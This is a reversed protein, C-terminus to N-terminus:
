LIKLSIMFEKAPRRDKEVAAAAGLSFTSALRTFLVLEFDIQAGFNALERRLPTKDFNTVIASTFLALRSWTTYFSMWGARRFRIPPLAWEMMLRGYNKGSIENLEAGPFSYHERYRKEDQYDVWNNGFGGFYFNAFPENRDGYAYGASGRWWISSHNIPLLIGYDLETRTQPFFKDNVYNTRFTTRSRVGFEEDVAGLSKQVNEYKLDAKLTLLKDFSTSVNQFDPLREL